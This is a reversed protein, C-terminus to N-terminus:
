KLDKARSRAIDLEARPTKETKKIFTRLVVVRKGIATMYLSRAIGTKGKLRLEWIKGDIHRVHPERMNELGHNEILGTIREFHAIMDNPLSRVEQLAVVNVFGVTWM